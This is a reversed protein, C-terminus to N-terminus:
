FVPVVSGEYKELIFEKVKESKLAEVLKQVLESDKNDPRSVLVNVEPSDEGEIILSDELPTFNAELAYLIVLLSLSDAGASCALLLTRKNIFKKIYESDIGVSNIHELLQERDVFKRESTM